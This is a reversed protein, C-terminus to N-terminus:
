SILKKIKTISVVIASNIKYGKNDPLGCVFDFWTGDTYNKAKGVLEFGVSAKEWEKNWVVLAVSPNSEINKISERIHSNSIILKGDVVKVCAVAINHPKGNKGVTALGMANSEIFKKLGPTIM